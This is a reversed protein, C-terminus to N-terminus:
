ATPQDPPRDLATPTVMDGPARAPETLFDLLGMLALVQVVLGRSDVMTFRRGDGRTTNCARVLLGISGTDIFTVRAVDVTLAQPHLALAEGLIAELQNVVSWDLEGALTLCVDEGRQEITYTLAPQGM